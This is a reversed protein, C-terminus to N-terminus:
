AYCGQPATMAAVLQGVELGNVGEGLLRVHGSVEYVPVFPAQMSVDGRRQMIEVYNVGAFAIDIAVQGPGPTLEPVEVPSLVEPGGIASAVVAKM